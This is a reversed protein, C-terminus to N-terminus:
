LVNDMKETIMEATFPKMIYEDAGAKLAQLVNSMKNLSTVMIIKTNPAQNESRVRTLFHYGNMVPMEWDLFILDFHDHKALMDLAEKGNPAEYVSHGQEELINKLMLRVLGSDDVTLIKM